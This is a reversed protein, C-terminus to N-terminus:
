FSYKSQFGVVFKRNKYLGSVQAVKSSPGDAGVLIETMYSKKNEFIINPKKYNVFKHNKYLKAGADVALRAVAQDFKARHLLINPKNFKIKISNGNPSVVKVYPLRNIIFEDSIPMLEEISSTVLGTCQIPVGVESHEEFLSVDQGQKALLYALYSGAPGAGIISIM